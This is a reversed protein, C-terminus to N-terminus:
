DVCIELSCNMQSSGSWGRQCFSQRHLQSSLPPYLYKIKTFRYRRSYGLDWGSASSTQVQILYLNPSSPYFDIAHPGVPLWHLGESPLVTTWIIWHKMWLRASLAPCVRWLNTSVALNPLSVSLPLHCFKLECRGSFSMSQPLLFSMPSLLSFYMQTLIVGHVEPFQRAFCCGWQLPSPILPTVQHSLSRWTSRPGVTHEMM